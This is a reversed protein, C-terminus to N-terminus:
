WISHSRSSIKQFPKLYHQNWHSYYINFIPYSGFGDFVGELYFVEWLGDWIATGQVDKVKGDSVNLMVISQVAQVDSGNDSGPM